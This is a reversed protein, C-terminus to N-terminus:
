NFRTGIRMKPQYCSWINARAPLFTSCIFARWSSNSVLPCRFPMKVFHCPPATAAPVCDSSHCMLRRLYTFKASQCCQCQIIKSYIVDRDTTIKTTKISSSHTILGASSQTKGVNELRLIIILLDYVQLNSNTRAVGLCYYKMRLDNVNERGDIIVFWTFM